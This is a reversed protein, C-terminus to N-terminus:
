GVGVQSDWPPLQELLMFDDRGTRAYARVDGAFSEAAILHIIPADDHSTSDLVVEAIVCPRKDRRLGRDQLEVLWVWHPLDASRILRSVTTGRTQPSAARKYERGELLRSRLSFRGGPRVDSPLSASGLIAPQSELAARDTQVRFTALARTEAAEGTLYAKEPVPIMLAKWVKPHSLPDDILQYPGVQDDCAVLSINGDRRRQWGVLTFAHDTAVVIVPFGSNLYKCVVRLIRERFDQRQRLHPWRPPRDAPYRGKRGGPVPALDRVNYFIAPLRLAGFIAQVQETTLGSSPLERQQSGWAPPMGAIEGTPHRGIIGRNAAVYHCLWSATHACRLLEGDQQMFPVGELPLPNGLLSPHEQVTTLRADALAPHTRLVSRGVPGLTTPRLVAYGLYNEEAPLDYFEEAVVERTFFHLREAADPRPDFRRSWFYSYESRYDPDIYRHEQVVRRCGGLAAVELIQRLPRRTKPPIGFTLRRLLYSWHVRNQPEVEFVTAAQGLPRIAFGAPPSGLAQSFPSSM